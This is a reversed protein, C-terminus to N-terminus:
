GTEPRTFLWSGAPPPPGAAAWGEWAFDVLDSPRRAGTDLAHRLLAGRAKKAHVTVTKLSGDRREEKFVPSIVPGRLAAADVAKMYELAAVSLVAEGDKLDANLAATLRPRWWAALNAAREPGLSSGMELRYAEIRDLPRLLGYLGSMIRLRDQARRRGAADLTHPDLGQYVLGTFAFLAPAAPRGEDGWRALDARARDALAGTVGMAKFLRAAPLGRLAQSLLDAEAAFGPETVRLRPPLDGGLTMTKTSNVLLLM